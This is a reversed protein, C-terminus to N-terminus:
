QLHVYEFSWAARSKMREPTGFKMEPNQWRSSEMCCKTSPELNTTM